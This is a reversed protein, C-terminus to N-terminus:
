KKMIKLKKKRKWEQQAELSKEDKTGSKIQNYTLFNINM